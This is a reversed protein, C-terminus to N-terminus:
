EADDVLNSLARDARIPRMASALDTLAAELRDVRALLTSQGHGRVSGAAVMATIDGDPGLAYALRGPIIGTEAMDVLAPDAGAAVLAATPTKFGGSNVVLMAVCERPRGNVDRWDPSVDSARLTRVQAPTADPRMAGTVFIGYADEYVAVDAVACGTHAYFAQADSAVRALSPHVTDMILPGTPMLDGEATLVHGKRFEAYGVASRPPSVCRGTYSIHCADWTAVHGFVHGEDTVVLPWVIGDVDRRAFWASPPHVPYVTEIAASAVLAGERITYATWAGWQLSTGAVAVLPEAPAEDVINGAGDVLYIFSQAFAPFATITAGMITASTLHMVGPDFSLLDDLAPDAPLDNEFTVEVECMDVSVGRVFKEAVLRMAEAGVPGELDFVGGGWVEGNERREIWDIRGAIEAADHGEGGGDPNRFMVMLTLPLDRWVLAGPDILRRDGSEVGEVVLIGEWEGTATVAFSEGPSAIVDFEAGGGVSAAQLPPIDGEPVGADLYHNRLHSYVGDRDATPIDLGGRGGNLVAVAAACGRINAAGPTGDSSVTHHPLKCAAKALEGGEVPATDDIWAYIQAYYDRAAPSRVATEDFNWVADTTGTHHVAVAGFEAVSAMGPQMPEGPGMPPEMPQGGSMAASSADVTTAEENPPAGGSPASALANVTGAEVTASAPVVRRTRAPPRPVPVEAPTPAPPAAQASGFPASVQDGAFFVAMGDLVPTTDLLAVIAPDTPDTAYAVTIHPLYTEYDDEVAIGAACLAEAVADRIPSLAENQVLIATAADGDDGPPFTNVGGVECELPGAVQAAVGKVVDAIASRVGDPLATADDNVYVATVHVDATPTPTGPVALDGYASANAVTFVVVTSTHVPESGDPEAM